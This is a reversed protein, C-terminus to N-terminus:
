EAPKPFTEVRCDEGHRQLYYSVKDGDRYTIKWHGNNLLTARKIDYQENSWKGQIECIFHTVVNVAQTTPALQLINMWIAVGFVVLFAVLFVALKINKDAKTKYM